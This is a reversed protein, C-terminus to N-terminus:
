GKLKRGYTGLLHKLSRIIRQRWRVEGADDTERSLGKKNLDFKCKKSVTM